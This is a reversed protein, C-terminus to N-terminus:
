FQKILVRTFSQTFEAFDVNEFFQGFAAQEKDTKPGFSLAANLDKYSAYIFMNESNSNGHTVQGAVAFGEFNFTQMLEGFSSVFANANKDRM